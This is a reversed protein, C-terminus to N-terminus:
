KIKKEGKKRRGIKKGMERTSERMYKLEKRKGDGRDSQIYKKKKM